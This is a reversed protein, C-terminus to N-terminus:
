PVSRDYVVSEGKRGIELYGIQQYMQDLDSNAYVAIYRSQLNEKQSTLYGQECCNIGFGEPLAYLVRWDFLQKGEDTEADFGWIVVNEFSPVQNTDLTMHNEFINKWALYKERATDDIYPIKYEVIATTRFLFFFAFTVGILASKKYFRTKMNSIVFIGLASFTLLHKSSEQMKHYMLFVALLMAIYSATLYLHFLFEERRKDRFCSITYVALILTTALFACFYAGTFIGSRFAEVCFAFFMKGQSLFTYFVHYIGRFIGEEMFIRVWQTDYLPTLYQATLTKQMWIYISLIITLILFSAVCGRLHKQRIWRICPLLLFLGMYPRMLTLLGSLVFMMVLDRSEHKKSHDDKKKIAHRYFGYFVILLSMCTIEPMGSLLYRTLPRFLLFLSTLIGLQKKSPKALLGYAIMALSLFFINAVIPSYLHWGFLLGFLVWPLLLLPSWAAFSLAAAHSENFGFFGYPYGGHLIGEVLKYYYLEDNWESNLLSVDWPAYGDAACALFV